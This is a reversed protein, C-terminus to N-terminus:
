GIAGFVSASPFEGIWTLAYGNRKIALGGAAGPKDGNGGYAGWGGGGGSSTVNGFRYWFESGGNAGSNRDSGGSGGSLVNWGAYELPHVTLVGGGGGAGGGKGIGNAVSEATGGAGGVGPFVRGGGGGSFGVNLTTVGPQSATVASGNSGSQGISGGAGGNARIGRSYSVTTFGGQGGGAGGGGGALKVAGGLSDVAATGRGGGGGGGGIYGNRSDITTPSNMAIAIGGATAPVGYVGGQEYSGGTGGKGMIFGQNIITVGNSFVGTTLAAVSTNDSWVYVGSSIIIRAISAGDWGNSLAWTRLNLEKQNTTITGTWLKSSGYFNSISISSPSSPIGTSVGGPFGVTGSPVNSGGAYYESLSIPNIGGFETQIELLSLPNDPRAPNTGWNKIAM